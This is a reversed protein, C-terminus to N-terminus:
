KIVPLSKFAKKKVGHAAFAIGFNEQFLRDANMCLRCQVCTVDRTQAPCPIWRTSSGKAKFSKAGNPFNDVVLAPAYGMKRVAASMKPSEISGLVSVLDWTKRPIRRWAHTYTWIAGGGRKVYNKSASVIIRVAKITRADGSVHLRLDRGGRAGDQPIPKGRFSFKIERAEEQAVQEPSVKKRGELKRSHLGTNGYQAYCMTNKLACYEPCSDRISTYTAAVKFKGDTLKANKSNETLIASM